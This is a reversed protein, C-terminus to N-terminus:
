YIRRAAIPLQRIRVNQNETVSIVAGKSLEGGCVKLVELLLDALAEGRLGEIRIRIVSPAEAGTM